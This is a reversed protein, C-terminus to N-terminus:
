CRRAASTSAPDGHGRHVLGPLLRRHAPRHLPIGAVHFGTLLFEPLVTVAALYLAGVLNLRTLIRDIYEATRKGPRIGPIFGGYKRMNEALDDPNFIISM